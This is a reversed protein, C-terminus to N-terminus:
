HQLKPMNEFFTSIKKFQEQPLTEIFDLVEEKTFDKYVQEADYITDVCNCILDFLQTANEMGEPNEKIMDLTPYKLTVGVDSTLPINFDIKEKPFVVNVKKLDINVTIQEPCYACQLKIKAVDEVSKIRLQLFIYEVDFIPLTDVNIAGETCNSIIQRLANAIEKQKGGEMAMLLLKEEKVLFPRYKVTEGTSPLTLEYFPTNIKPLPM